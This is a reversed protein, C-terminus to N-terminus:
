LALRYFGPLCPRRVTRRQRPFRWLRRLDAATLLHVQWSGFTVALILVRLVLQARSNSFRLRLAGSLPHETDGHPSRLFIDFLRERYRQRLQAVPTASGRAHSRAVATASGDTAGMGVVAAGAGFRSCGTSSGDRSNLSFKHGIDATACPRITGTSSVAALLGVSLPSTTCYMPPRDNKIMGCLGFATFRTSESPSEKEVHARKSSRQPLANSFSRNGRPGRPAM